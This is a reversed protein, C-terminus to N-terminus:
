QPVFQGSENAIYVKQDDNAVVYLVSMPAFVDGDLMGDVNEASIPLEPTEDSVVIAMVVRNEGSYGVPTAYVAKMM